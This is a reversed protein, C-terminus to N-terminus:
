EGHRLAPDQQQPPQQKISRGIAIKNNSKNAQQEDDDMCGNVWEGM